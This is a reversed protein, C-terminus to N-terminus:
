RGTPAAPTRLHAWFFSPVILPQRHDSSHIKQLKSSLGLTLIMAVHPRGVKFCPMTLSLCSLYGAGACLSRDCLNCRVICWLEYWPTRDFVVLVPARSQCKAMRRIFCVAVFTNRKKLLGMIASRIKLIQQRSHIGREILKSASTACLQWWSYYIWIRLDASTARMARSHQKSLVFFM